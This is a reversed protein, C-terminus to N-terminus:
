IKEGGDNALESMVGSKVAFVRYDRAGAVYPLHLTVSSRNPVYRVPEAFAPAKTLNLRTQAALAIKAAAPATSGLSFAPAPAPPAPTPGEMNAIGMEPPAASAGCGMVAATLVLYKLRHM